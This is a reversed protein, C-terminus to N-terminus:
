KLNTFPKLHQINAVLHNIVICKLFFNAIALFKM